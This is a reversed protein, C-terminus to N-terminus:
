RNNNIKRSLVVIEVTSDNCNVKEIITIYLENDLKLIVNEEIAEVIKEIDYKFKELGTDEDIIFNIYFRIEYLGEELESVKYWDVLRSYFNSIIREHILKSIKELKEM